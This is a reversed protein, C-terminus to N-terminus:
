EGLLLLLWPLGRSCITISKIYENDIENTESVSGESDAVIKITHSGASLPGIAEDEFTLSSGGPLSSSGSYQLVDDVYLSTTFTDADIGNENVVAWDIYLTDANSFVDADTNTGTTTSVVIKDSWGAPQYPTLNPSLIERVCIIYNPDTKSTTGPVGAPWTVYHANASDLEESTWAQDDDWVREQEVWEWMTTFSNKLDEASYPALLTTLQDTTPVSWDDYGGANASACGTQAGGWSGSAPNPFYGNEWMLGTGTDTITGNGNDVLDAQSTSMIGFMLLSVGVFVVTRKNM